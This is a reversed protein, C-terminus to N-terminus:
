VTLTVHSSTNRTCRSSRYHRAQKPWPWQFKDFIELELWAGSYIFELVSAFRFVKFFPFWKFFNRWFSIPLEGFHFSRGLFFKHVHQSRIESVRTLTDVWIFIWLAKHHDFLSCLQLIFKERARYSIERSNESLRPTILALLFSISRKPLYFTSYYKQQWPVIIM